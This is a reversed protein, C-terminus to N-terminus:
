PIRKLEINEEQALKQLPKCEFTVTPYYYPSSAM